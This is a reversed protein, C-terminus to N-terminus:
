SGTLAQCDCIQESGFSQIKLLTVYMSDYLCTPNKKWDAYKRPAEDLNNCKNHIQEKKNSLSLKHNPHVCNLQENFPM